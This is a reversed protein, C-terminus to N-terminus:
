GGHGGSEPRLAETTMMEWFRKVDQVKRSRGSDEAKRSEHEPEQRRVGLKKLETRLGGYQTRQGGDEM